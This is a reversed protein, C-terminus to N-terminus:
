SSILQNNELMQMLSSVIFTKKHKLVDTDKSTVWEHLKIM